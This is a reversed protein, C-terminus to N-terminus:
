DADSEVGTGSNDTEVANFYFSPDNPDGNEGWLKEAMRACGGGGGGLGTDARIEDLSKGEALRKEIDAKTVNFCYCITIEAM